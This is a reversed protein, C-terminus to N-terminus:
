YIAPIIQRRTRTSTCQLPTEPWLFGRGTCAVGESNGWGCSGRAASFAGTKSPSRSGLRSEHDCALPRYQEEAFCVTRRSSAPPLRALMASPPFGSPSWSRLVAKRICRSIDRSGRANRSASTYPSCHSREHGLRPGKYM